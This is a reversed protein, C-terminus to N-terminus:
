DITSDDDNDAAKKFAVTTDVTHDDFYHSIDHEAHHNDYYEDVENDAVTTHLPHDNYYDDVELETDSPAAETGEDCNDIPHAAAINSDDNDSLLDEPFIITFLHMMLDMM